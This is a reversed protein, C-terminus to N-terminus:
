RRHQPGPANRRAAPATTARARGLKSGDGAALTAKAGHPLRQRVHRVVNPIGAAVYAANDFISDGLLM